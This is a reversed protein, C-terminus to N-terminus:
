YEKEGISALWKVYANAALELIKEVYTFDSEKASIETYPVELGLKESLQEALM